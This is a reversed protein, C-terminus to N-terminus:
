KKFFQEQYIASVNSQLQIYEFCILLTAPAPLTLSLFVQKVAESQHIRAYKVNNNMFTNDKKCNKMIGKTSAPMAATPKAITPEGQHRSKSCFVLVHISAVPVKLRTVPGTQTSVSFQSNQFLSLQSQEHAQYYSKQLKRPGLELAINASIPKVM